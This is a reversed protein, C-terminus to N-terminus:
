NKILLKSTVAMKSILQYEYYQENKNLNSRM